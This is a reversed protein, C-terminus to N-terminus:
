AIEARSKKEKENFNVILPVDDLKGQNGGKELPWLTTASPVEKESDVANALSWEIRSGQDKDTAEFNLGGKSDYIKLDVAQPAEGGRRHAPARSARTRRTGRRGRCSRARRPIKASNESPHSRETM